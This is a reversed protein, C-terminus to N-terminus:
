SSDANDAGKGEKDIIWEEYKQGNPMTAWNLSKCEAVLREHTAISGDENTVEAERLDAGEFNAGRITYVTLKATPLIAGSFDADTLDAGKSV